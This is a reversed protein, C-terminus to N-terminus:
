SIFLQEVPWYRQGLDSSQDPAVIWVLQGQHKVLWARCGDPIGDLVNGNCWGIPTLKDNALAHMIKRHLSEPDHSYSAVQIQSALKKTLTTVSLLNKIKTSM